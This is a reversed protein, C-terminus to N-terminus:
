PWRGSSSTTTDITLSGLESLTPAPLRGDLPLPSAEKPNKKALAVAAPVDDMDVETEEIPDGDTGYEYGFRSLKREQSGGRLHASCQAPSAAGAGKPGGNPHGRTHGLRGPPLLDRVHNGLLARPGQQPGGLGSGPYCCVACHSPPM